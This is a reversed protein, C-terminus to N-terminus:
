LITIPRDATATSYSEETIMTGDLMRAIAMTPMSLFHHRHDTTITLTTCQRCTVETTTALLIPLRRITRWREVIM